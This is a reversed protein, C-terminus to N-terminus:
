LRRYKLSSSYEYRCIRKASLFFPRAELDVPGLTFIREDISNSEWSFEADKIAIKSDTIPIDNSSM